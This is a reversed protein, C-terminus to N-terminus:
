KSIIVSDNVIQYQFRGTLHLAEMVQVLSEDKFDCSYTMKKLEEDQIDVKVNFWHEIRGAVDELSENRFALCNKKWVSELSAKDNEKVDVKKVWYLTDEKAPSSTKINGENQVVLRDSPRMVIKREPSSNMTVEIAGRILTAESTKENQYSRINFATGLVRIDLAGTHIIFPHDADKQVDFFAEGSLAVERVRSGFDKGYTLRSDANLWVETGDPLQVRSKSGFRTSIVNPAAKVPKPPRSVIFFIILSAAVSSAFLVLRRVRTRKPSAEPYDPRHSLHNSLRQIHRNFSRDADPMPVPAASIASARRARSLLEEWQPNDRLLQSLEQLEDASAENDLQLAVLLWFRDIDSSAM